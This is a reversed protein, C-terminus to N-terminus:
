RLEVGLETKEIRFGGVQKHEPEKYIEVWTMTPYLMQYIPHSLLFELDKKCSRRYLFREFTLVNGNIDTIYAIQKVEKM